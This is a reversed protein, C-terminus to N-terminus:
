GNTRPMAPQAGGAPGDAAELEVVQQQMSEAIATVFRLIVEQEAAAFRSVTAATREGLPGFFDMATAMGQETYRLQVSRRNTPHDNTRRVYGARELRDIVYTTGASSLGLHKQLRGPTLPEGAGEAAMIAVLAQLDSQQLNQQAAFAHTLRTSGTGYRRLADIIAWTRKEAADSANPYGRV